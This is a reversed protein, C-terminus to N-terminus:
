RKEITCTWDDRKGTPGGQKMRQTAAEGEHARNVIVKKKLDRPNSPVPPYQTPSQLTYRPGRGYKVVLRGELADHPVHNSHVPQGPGLVLLLGLPLLLEVFKVPFQEEPHPHARCSLNLGKDQVMRGQKMHKAHVTPQVRRFVHM